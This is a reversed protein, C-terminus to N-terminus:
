MFDCSLHCQRGKLLSLFLLNVAELFLLVSAREVERLPAEAFTPLAAPLAQAIRM